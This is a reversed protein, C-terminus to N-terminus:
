LEYYELIPETRDCFGTPFVNWVNQTGVIGYYIVYLLINKSKERWYPLKLVITNRAFIFVFFLLSMERYTRINIYDSFLRTM